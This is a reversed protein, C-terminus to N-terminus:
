PIEFYLLQTELLSYGGNDTVMFFRKGRYRTLGEFNNIRWGDTSDFRALVEAKVTTEANTLSPHIRSLTIIWPSYPRTFARELVLVAGSPLAELAVLSGDLEFPQYYWRLGEQSIIPIPGDDSSQEPGTMLGLTPHLTLAELGKNNKRYLRKDRLTPPLPFHQLFQGEIDYYDVRNRGEFSILLHSDGAIGNNGDVVALGESDRWRKKLRKRNDDHLQFDALLRMGTLREGSFEPQLHLLRGRDTIGYLIGQDEDWALDSLEALAQDGRLALSGLLRIAMYRDGAIWQESLHVVSGVEKGPAPLSLATLLIFLLWRHM